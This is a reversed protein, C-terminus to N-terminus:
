LKTRCSDCIELYIKKHAISGQSIRYFYLKKLLDPDHWKGKEFYRGCQCIFVYEVIM